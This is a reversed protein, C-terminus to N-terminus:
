KVSGTRGCLRVSLEAFSVSRAARVAAGREAEYQELLHSIEGGFMSCVFGSREEPNTHKKECSQKPIRM